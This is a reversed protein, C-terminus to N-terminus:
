KDLCFTNTCSSLSLGLGMARCESSTHLGDREYKIIQAEGIYLTMMKNGRVTGLPYVLSNSFIVIRAGQYTGEVCHLPDLISDQQKVPKGKRFHLTVNFFTLSLKHM